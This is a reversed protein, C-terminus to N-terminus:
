SRGCRPIVKLHLSVQTRVGPTRVESAWSAAQADPSKIFKQNNRIAQLTKSGGVSLWKGWRYALSPLGLYENKQKKPCYPKYLMKWFARRNRRFNLTQGTLLTKFENLLEVLHREQALCKPLHSVLSTNEPLKKPLPPVRFSLATQTSLSPERCVCVHSEELCLGTEGCMGTEGCTCASVWVSGCQIEGKVCVWEKREGYVSVCM